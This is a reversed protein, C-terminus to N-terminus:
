RIAGASLDAHLESLAGEAANREASGFPHSSFRAEYFLTTLLRAAGSRVLGAAAARQLLEAPTDATERATGAQALSREMAVYCAIVAARAEDLVALATRGATVADRLDEEDDPEPLLPEEGLPGPETRRRHMVVIAAAVLVACLVLVILLDELLRGNLHQFPSPGAPRVTARQRPLPALTPLIRPRARPPPKHVTSLILLGPIVILAAILVQRLVARLRRAVVMARDPPETGPSGPQPERPERRARVILVALAAAFVAEFILAPAILRHAPSGTLGEAPPLQPGGLALAVLALSALVALLSVWAADPAPRRARGRGPRDAM